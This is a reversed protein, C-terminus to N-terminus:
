SESIWQFHYGSRIEFTYKFEEYARIVEDVTQCVRIEDRWEEFPTINDAIVDQILIEKITSLVQENNKLLRVAEWSGDEGNEWLVVVHTKLQKM